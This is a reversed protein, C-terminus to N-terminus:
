PMTKLIVVASPDNAEIRIQHGQARIPPPTDYEIYVRTGDARTYQLDPRNIGVREGAANVQHQNVRIDTAGSARASSIDRSLEAQQTTSKGIYGTSKAPPPRPDVSVDQPLRAAPPPSTRVVVGDVPSAPAPKSVSRKNRVWRAIDQIHRPLTSIAKALFALEVITKVKGIPTENFYQEDLTRRDQLLLAMDADLTQHASIDAPSMDAMRGDPTILRPLQARREQAIMLEATVEDLFQLKSPQDLTGSRDAAVLRAQMAAIKDSYGGPIHSWYIDKLVLDPATRAQMAEVATAANENDRYEKAEVASTYIKGPVNSKGAADCNMLCDDLHRVAAQNNITVTSSGKNLLVYGALQSVGSTLGSGANGIM